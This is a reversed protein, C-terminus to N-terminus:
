LKVDKKKLKAKKTMAKKSKGPSRNKDAMDDDAASWPKSIKLRGLRGTYTV